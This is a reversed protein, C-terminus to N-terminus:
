VKKQRIHTAHNAPKMPQSANGGQGFVPNEAKELRDLSTGEPLNKKIASDFKLPDGPKWAKGTKESSKKTM